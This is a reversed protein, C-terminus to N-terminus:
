VIVTVLVPSVSRDETSKVSVNVSRLPTFRVRFLPGNNVPDDSPEASPKNTTPSTAVYVAVKIM